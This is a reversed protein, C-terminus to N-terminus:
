EQQIAEYKACASWGAKHDTGPGNTDDRLRCKIYTKSYHKRYLHKCYKCTAGQPGPGYARVCPNKIVPVAAMATDFWTKQEATLPLKNPGRM